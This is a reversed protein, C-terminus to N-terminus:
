LPSRGAAGSALVGAGSGEAPLMTSTAVALPLKGVSSAATSAAPSASASDSSLADSVTNAGVSSAKAASGSPVSSANSASGSASAPM